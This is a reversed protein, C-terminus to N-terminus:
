ERNYDKYGLEHEAEARPRGYRARSSALVREARTRDHTVDGLETEISFPQVTQGNVLTSM